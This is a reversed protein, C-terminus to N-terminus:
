SAATFLQEGSSVIRWIPLSTSGSSTTSTIFRRQCSNYEKYFIAPITLHDPNVSVFHIHEVTGAMKILLSALRYLRM